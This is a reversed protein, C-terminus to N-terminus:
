THTIHKDEAPLNDKRLEAILADAARVATRAMIGTDATANKWCTTSDFIARIKKWFTFSLTLGNHYNALLGALCQAATNRRFETWYAAPIGDTVKRSPIDIDLTIYIDKYIGTGKMTHIRAELDDLEPTSCVTRGTDILRIGRGRYHYLNSINARILAKSIATDSPEEKRIDEGLIHLTVAKM